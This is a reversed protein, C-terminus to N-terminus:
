KLKRKVFRAYTISRTPQGNHRVKIVKSLNACPKRAQVCNRPCPRGENEARTEKEEKERRETNQLLQMAIVNRIWYM